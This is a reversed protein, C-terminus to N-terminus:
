AHALWLETPTFKLHVDLELSATKREVRDLWYPDGLDRAAARATDIEDLVESPDETTQMDRVLLQCYAFNVKEHVIRGEVV